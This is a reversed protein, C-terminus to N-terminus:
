YSFTDDWTEYPDPPDPKFVFVENARYPRDDVAPGDTKLQFKQGRPMMSPPADAEWEVWSVNYHPAFLRYIHFHWFKWEGDENIFDVGYAGWAWHPDLQGTVRNRGTEMGDSIWVGKATKLDGAVELYPSENPHFFLEGTRDPEEGGEQRMSGWARSPADPGEFYGQEGFYVRTDPRKAFLEYLDEMRHTAHLYAYRGMLRHCDSIARQREVGYELKALREEVNGTTMM